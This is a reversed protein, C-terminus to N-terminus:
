ISIYRIIELDTDMQKEIRINPNVECSSVEHLPALGDSNDCVGGGEIVGAGINGISVGITRGGRM